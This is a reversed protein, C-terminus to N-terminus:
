VPIIKNIDVYWLFAEVVPYDMDLLLRRYISIQNIYGSREKGFKFDIVTVRDDRIIVRDPRRATGEATLIEAENMIKLGPEFWSSVMPESIVTIIKEVIKTRDSENIKGELIMKNVADPIDAATTISEFVEHMIRGWNVRKKQDEAVTMLWNEGHFKLHLGSIGRSVIYGGSEIRSEGSIEKDTNNGPIEGCIFTLKEKNFFQSLILGPKDDGPQIDFQLTENLMAAVSTSQSKAPCFGYLCDIARTFAVYMLNLNDVLASYSEEFYKDAFFSYQLDGKYRVPVLGIKNFPARDPNLWLIPNKKGHGLNWSIFPIIVVKFQLGKSKHITMVRISDQQDSLVISKKSGTTAWWELFAPIDATMGSSFELVCDQFTNLYATNENSKGLEFFLIINEVAEFLPMHRIRGLFGNYDPPFLKELTNGAADPTVFGPLLPDKSTCILWNQLTLAKNLDDNQNYLGSLLSIIFNVVPSHVLLLSENSVINYNYRSRKYSDAESQYSLVSKLVDAGENNTRVLIGIDSGSYGKDQLEEIMCPLKNLVIDEFKQDDTGEIFEIRVYGGEKNGPYLQKADAYLDKLNLSSDSLSTMRDIQEPILSFITNNFSIINKRSRYNKELHEVVLRESDIEQHLLNGFIKWDSNRWRYISQKVDGVVFNDHGGAMSNEILPRFNNWQILSTDQFEDIMYNEFTNGVKEYIFPTQDDSIILFLLEGADSLLFRNEGSTIIHVHDLINALIGLNYINEIIFEATNVTLLNESYYKLAETFIADFGDRIANNLEPSPGPKASWVPPDNLIQTVITNAPKYIGSPGEDMMRLFSPVGGQKGRFFMSDDVNNRILIENCLKSYGKLKISFESKISKLEKVYNLLLQRDRLKDREKQPLLKFKEKFIEEALKLIDDKLNWSKGEEVRIRAYELIWDKLAADNSINAFMDDVAHRLILSHDLEIIYGQQLGIERTFSKLVKQFFSDITGVFFSSYDHLINELIEKAAISLESAPKKSSVSLSSGLDTSEGRAMSFLQGLIKAKMESAAKNTFTVALIKKFITKSRFLKSLYIGTLKYTKGSGASASYKTLIGSGM